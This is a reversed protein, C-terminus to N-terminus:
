RIPLENVTKDAKNYTCSQNESSLTIANNTFVNEAGIYIAIAIRLKFYQTWYITIPEGM